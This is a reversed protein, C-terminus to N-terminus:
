TLDSTRVATVIFFTKKSTLGYSEQLLQSKSSFTVEMMLTVFIQSSAVVNAAKREGLYHLRYIGGLRRKECSGCPEADQLVDNKMTM